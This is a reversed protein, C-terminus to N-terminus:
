QWPSLVHIWGAPGLGWAAYVELKEDVVMRLNAPESGAQPLAKLWNNTSSDDSHSVAIFDLDSREKAIDRLNLYTKEAWPCGCHRLFAVVTGRGSTLQLKPNTPARDGIKPLESVPPRSPSFWSTLEQQFTM